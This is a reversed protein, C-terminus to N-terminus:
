LKWLSPNLLNKDTVVLQDIERETTNSIPANFSEFNSNLQKLSDVGMLIHDIYNKKNVYGISLDNISINNRKSIAHISTLKKKLSSLNGTITDIEKFFLGQLFVSRTHIEKGAKKAQLIMDERFNSNDLLNFPLQIVEIFDYGLLKEVEDNTYVSVGIKKVKGSLLIKKHNKLIFDLNDNFSAFSHFMYVHLSPINLEKLNQDIHQEFDAEIDSASGSYKTIIEFRFDRESHYKGIIEQSNGYAEATDLVRIGMHYAQDLIKFVHNETPKGESNNIGYNLGFQVTGLILKNM